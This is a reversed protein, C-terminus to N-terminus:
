SFAEARDRAGASSWSGQFREDFRKTMYEAV